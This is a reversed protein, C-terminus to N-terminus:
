SIQQDGWTACRVHRTLMRLLIDAYALYAAGLQKGNPGIGMPKLDNGDLWIPGNLYKSQFKERSLIESDTRITLMM